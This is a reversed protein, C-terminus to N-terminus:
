LRYAAQRHRHGRRRLENSSLLVGLSVLFWFGLSAMQRPEDGGGCGSAQVIICLQEGGMWVYTVLWGIHSPCYVLIVILDVLTVHIQLAIYCSRTSDNQLRGLTLAAAMTTTTAAATTAALRVRTKALKKANRLSKVLRYLTMANLPAGIVAILTLVVIEMYDALLREPIALSAGDAARAFPQVAVDFASSSDDADAAVATATAAAAALAM